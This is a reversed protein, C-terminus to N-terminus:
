KEDRIAITFTLSNPIGLEKRKIDFNQQTLPGIVGKEPSLTPTDVISIIYYNTILKNPPSPFNRPHQKAIIYKNDFGAEFVMEDIVGVYDGSEDLKYELSTTQNDYDTSVLYYNAIIKRTILGGCGSLITILVGFIILNCTTKVRFM